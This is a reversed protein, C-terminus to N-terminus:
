KIIRPKPKFTRLAEELEDLRDSLEQETASRIPMTRDWILKVAVLDGARAKDIVARRIAREDKENILDALLRVRNRGKPRGKPNGSQGKKFPRGRPTKVPQTM